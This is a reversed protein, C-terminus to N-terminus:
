LSKRIKDAYSTLFKTVSPAIVQAVLIQVPILKLILDRVILEETKLPLLLAPETPYRFEMEVLLQANRGPLSHVGDEM